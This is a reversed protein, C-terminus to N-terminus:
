SRNELRDSEIHNYRHADGGLGSGPKLGAAPPYVCCETRGTGVDTDWAPAAVSRDCKRSACYLVVFGLAGCQSTCGRRKERQTPPWCGASGPM